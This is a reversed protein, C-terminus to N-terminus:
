PWDHINLIAIQRTIEKAVKKHYVMAYPNPLRTMARMMSCDYGIM